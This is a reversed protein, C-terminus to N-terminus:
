LLVMKLGISILIIGGLVAAKDALRVGFKRGIMVGAVCVAFTVAAIILACVFAAALDMKENTFGVSLADISTAVDQLLLAKKGVGAQIHGADGSFGEKVMSVGIFCLLFCAIWPIYSAFFQFVEVIIHVCIWGAMPMLWQFFAFTGAMFSIKKWGMAPEHLGNALSVSFADMALGAGLLVSSLLFVFDM